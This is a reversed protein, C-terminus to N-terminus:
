NVVYKADELYAALDNIEEDTFPKAMMIMLASTPGQKIVERYAKLKEVTFSIENGSVKPYSSAGKGARGHCSVCSDNYVEEGREKDGGYGSHPSILALFFALSATYRLLM